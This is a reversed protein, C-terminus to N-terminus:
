GAQILPVVNNVKTGGLIPLFDNVARKLTTDCLHAYHRSTIRTDSHGLLRSITLLDVGANALFSAYTHRLEHFSVAPTIRAVKCAAHLPRVQYNKGWAKGDKRVFLIADGLKGVAAAAFVTIGEDSLPVHRGRSSKGPSIFVSRRDASFDKVRLSTLESYRAGTMLAAQVLLRFDEDCANILRGSENQDLFRIVPEDVNQFPRVRRWESDSKVLGDEFAKNLVAKFIALIRNATARRLRKEDETTPASRFRVEAGNKSRLRGPAQALQTHWKRIQLATLKEVEVNGFLPVVHAKLGTETAKESKRHVRFWEMYHDIADQVTTASRVIGGDRQLQEFRLRARQQAEAFSLITQGNAEAYDDATGLTELRYGGSALAMRVSWIGYQASTRRYGLALGTELQGFVRKTLPLRLRHSRKELANRVNRPM